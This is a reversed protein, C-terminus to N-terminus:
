GWDLSQNNRYWNPERKEFQCALFVRGSTHLPCEQGSGKIKIKIKVKIKVKITVKVKGKIKIRGRASREDL